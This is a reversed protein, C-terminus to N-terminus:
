TKVLKEPSQSSYQLKLVVQRSYSNALLKKNLALYYILYKVNQLGYVTETM